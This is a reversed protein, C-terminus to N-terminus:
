RQSDTFLSNLVGDSTAIHIVMDPTYVEYLSQKQPNCGRKKEEEAVM